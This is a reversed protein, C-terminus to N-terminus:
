HKSASLVQNEPCKLCSFDYPNSELVKQFGVDCKCHSGTIDVTSNGPCISCTLISADFYRTGNCSSPYHLSSIAETQHVIESLTIIIFINLYKNM